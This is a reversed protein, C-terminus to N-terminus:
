QLADQNLPQTRVKHAYTHIYEMPVYLSKSWKPIGDIHVDRLLRKPFGKWSKHCKQWEKPDHTLLM